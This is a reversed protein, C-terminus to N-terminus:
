AASGALNRRLGPPHPINELEELTVLFQSFETRYRWCLRRLDLISAHCKRDNWAPTGWWRDAGWTHDVHAQLLRLLTLAVLQVQFTRLIPEKTWARCEEMGLRQPHDRLTDEQRFRATFVEVVQTASLDLATTVLFWPEEYGVMQVVLVHVPLQPGSV